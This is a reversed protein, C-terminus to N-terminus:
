WEVEIDSSTGTDWGDSSSTGGPVSLNLIIDGLQKPEASLFAGQVITQSNRVSSIMGMPISIIKTEGDKFAVSFNTEGLKTLDGSKNALTYFYFLEPMEDGEPSLNVPSGATGSSHTAPDEIGVEKADINMKSYYPIKTFSIGTVERSDDLTTTSVFRIKSVMRSLTIDKKVEEAGKEVRVVNAFFDLNDNNIEFNKVKVIEPYTADNTDYYCDQYYGSADKETSEIYDAFLVITYSGEEVSFTITANGDSVLAEKRELVNKTDKMDGEVLKAVYRLKHGDHIGRTGAVGPSSVTLTITKGKPESLSPGDIVETSSCAGSLFAAVLSLMAPPFQKVFSKM